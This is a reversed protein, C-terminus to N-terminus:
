NNLEDYDTIKRSSIFFSIILGILIYFGSGFEVTVSSSTLSVYFSIYYVLITLLIFLSMEVLKKMNKPKAKYSSSIIGFIGAAVTFLWLLFPISNNISIEDFLLQSRGSEIQGWFYYFYGEVQIIELTLDSIPSGILSSLLNFPIVAIFSLYLTICGCIFPLKRFYKRKKTDSNEGM